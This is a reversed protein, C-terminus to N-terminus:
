VPSPINEASSHQVSENTVPLCGLEMPQSSTSETISNESSTGLDTGGVSNGSSVWSIDDLQAQYVKTNTQAPQSGISSPEVM